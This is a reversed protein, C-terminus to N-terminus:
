QKTMRESLIKNKFLIRAVQGGTARPFSLLTATALDEIGEKQKGSNIKILGNYFKSPVQLVLPKVSPDAIPWIGKSPSYRGQGFIPILDDLNNFNLGLAKYLAGALASSLAFNFVFKSFEPHTIIESKEKGGISKLGGILFNMANFSYGQIPFLTQFLKSRMLKPTEGDHYILNTAAAISDGITISKEVSYGKRIANEYGALFGIKTVGKDIFSLANAMLVQENKLSQPSPIMEHMGLKKVNISFSRKMLNRVANSKGSSGFVKAVAVLTDRLSTAAVISPLTGAQNLITGISGIILNGVLNNQMNRIFRGSPSAFFESAIKMDDGPNGVGMINRSSEILASRLRPTHDFASDMMTNIMRNAPITTEVFRNISSLYSFASKVAHMSPIADALRHQAQALFASEPAFMEGLSSIIDEDEKAAYGSLLKSMEDMEVMHHMYNDPRPIIPNKGIAPLLENARKLAPNYIEDKIYREIEKLRSIGKEGLADLEAKSIHPMKPNNREIWKGLTVSNYDNKMEPFLRFFKEKAERTAKDAISQSAEVDIFKKMLVLDDTKDAIALLSNTRMMWYREPIEKVNKASVILDDYKSNLTYKKVQSSTLRALDFDFTANKKELNTLPRGIEESLKLEARKRETENIMKGIPMNISNGKIKAFPKTVIGHAITDRYVKPNTEKFNRILLNLTPLNLHSVDKGTAEKQIINGLNDITRAIDAEPNVGAIAKSLEALSDRYKYTVNPATGKITYNTAMKNLSGSGVTHGIAIGTPIEEEIALGKTMKKGFDEIDFLQRAGTAAKEADKLAFNKAINMSSQPSLVYEGIHKQASEMSAKSMEEATMPIAKSPFFKTKFISAVAPISALKIRAAKLAVDFPLAGIAGGMAATPAIEGITKKPKLIAEEAGTLAAMAAGRSLFTPLSLARAYPIALPLAPGLAKGISEPIREKGASLPYEEGKLTSEARIIAGPIDGSVAGGAVQGIAAYPRVLSAYGLLRRTTELFAKQEPSASSEFQRELNAKLSDPILNKAKLKQYTVPPNKSISFVNRILEARQEEPLPTYKEALTPM